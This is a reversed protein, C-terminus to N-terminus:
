QKIVTVGKKPKFKFFSDKLKPNIKLKTLKVRTEVGFADKVTTQTILLEKKDVTIYLEKLNGQAVRPKLLIVYANNKGKLLEPPFFDKKLGESGITGILFEMAVKSAGDGVQTEIVQALDPQFIWLKEGDSLVQEGEPETYVWRMKGPKKFYVTGSAHGAQAMGPQEIGPQLSEQTFGASLTKIAKYKKQVKNLIASASITDAAFVPAPPAAVFLSLAALAVAAVLARGPKFYM